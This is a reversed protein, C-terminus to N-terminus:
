CPGEALRALLGHNPAPLPLRAAEELTFWGWALATSPVGSGRCLFPHLRIGGAELVPLARWIEPRWRVEEALERLLAAEPNEGPEVKGGPFEWRGPLISADLARRQLFWGDDRQVLGLAAEQCRM